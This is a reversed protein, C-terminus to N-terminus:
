GPEKSTGARAGCTVLIWLIFMSVKGNQSSQYLVRVDAQNEKFSATCLVYIDYTRERNRLPLWWWSRFFHPAGKVPTNRTDFVFVRLAKWGSDLRCAIVDFVDLGNNKVMQVRVVGTAQFMEYACIDGNIDVFLFGLMSAPGYGCTCVKTNARIVVRVQPSEFYM